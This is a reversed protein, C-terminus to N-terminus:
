IKIIGRTLFKSFYFNITLSSSSEYIFKTLYEQARIVIKNEFLKIAFKDLITLTCSAESCLASRITSESIRIIRIIRSFDRPQEERSLSRTKQRILCRRTRIQVKPFLLDMPNERQNFAAERLFPSAVSFEFFSFFFFLALSVSLFFCSSSRHTRCTRAFRRIRRFTDTSPLYDRKSRRSM